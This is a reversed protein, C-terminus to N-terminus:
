VNTTWKFKLPHVGLSVAHFWVAGVPVDRQLGRLKDRLGEKYRGTRWSRWLLWPSLLALSVLYVADLLRHM